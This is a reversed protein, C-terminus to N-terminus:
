KPEKEVETNPDYILEGFRNYIRGEPDFREGSIVNVFWGAEAPVLGTDGLEIFDKDPV